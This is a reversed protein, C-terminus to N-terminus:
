NKSYNDRENKDKLFLFRFHKMDLVIDVKEGNEANVGYYTREINQPFPLLSVLLIVVIFSIILKKKM